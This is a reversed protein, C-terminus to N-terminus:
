ALLRMKKHNNRLDFVVHLLIGKVNMELTSIGNIAIKNGTFRVLNKHASEIKTVSKREPQPPEPAEGSNM